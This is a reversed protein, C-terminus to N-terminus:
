EIMMLAFDVDARLQELETIPPKVWDGGELEYSSFDSIGGFEAIEQAMDKDIYLKIFDTGKVAVACEIRENGPTKLFM